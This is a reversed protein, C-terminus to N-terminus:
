ADKTRASFPVFPRGEETLGWGLFEIFNLRLGHVVGGMVALAFNLGHGIALVLISGVLGFAPSAERVDAALQNFALALSSGALGLAFLRLYSLVDSFAKVASGLALVGKIPGGSFVLVALGGGALTWGAARMHAEGGLWLGLGGVIIAIWGLRALAALRWRMAVALALNAIMVHVAGIIVTLQIMQDYNNLSVLQLRALWGGESPPVGFYSGAVAGWAVGFLSAALWLPRLREGIASRGLSRWFLLCLGLLITSYGADSVILAFFAAFSFFVAGSPDWDAPGPLQYLKMLDAGAAVSKAPRLLTPPQEGAIAPRALMAAGSSALQGALGDRAREPTWGEVVFLGDDETAVAEAVDLLSRDEAIARDRLLLGLRRTLGEREADLEDIELDLVALLNTLHSLRRSGVHSRSAPGISEPPEDPSILAIYARSSTRHLITWPLDQQEFAALGRVPCVYFWLRNGNLEEVTDPLAFDGFPELQAIRQLLIERRDGASRRAERNSLVEDIFAEVDFDPDSVVQTRIRPAGSLYRVAAHAREAGLPKTRADRRLAEPLGEVHMVGAAQLAALIERKRGAPGVITTKLLREISM